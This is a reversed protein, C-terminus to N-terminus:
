KKEDNSQNPRPIIETRPESETAKNKDEPKKDREKIYNDRLALKAKSLKDTTELAIEMKDTRIDHLPNVGDKRDTHIIPSGDTIPEKNSLIRAIKEEIREGIYSNNVKINTKAPLKYKYM